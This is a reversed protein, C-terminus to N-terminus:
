ASRRLNAFARRHAAFVYRILAEQQLPDIVNYQFAYVNNEEVRVVSATTEITLAEPLYLVVTAVDGLAFEIDGTVNARAGAGSIDLTLGSYREGGVRVDITIVTEVRVFERRQIVSSEDLELRILPVGGDVRAKVRGYGRLLGRETTWEIAIQEGVSLLYTIGQDSPPAVILDPAALDEVRTVLMRGDELEIGLRQNLEPMKLKV